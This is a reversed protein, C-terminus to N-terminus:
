HLVMSVSIVRIRRRLVDARRGVGQGGAYEGRRDKGFFFDSFPFTTPTYPLYPIPPSSPLFDM